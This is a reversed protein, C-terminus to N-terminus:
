APKGSHASGPEMVQQLKNNKFGEIAQKITQDNSKYIKINAASLKMYANPGVNGTILVTVGKTNMLQGAQVGAGHASNLGLKSVAKFEMKDPDIIIFYKARGFRPDVVSSLENGLATVAIKM